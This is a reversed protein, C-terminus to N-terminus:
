QCITESLINKEKDKIIVKKNVIMQNLPLNITRTSERLQVYATDEEDQIKIYGDFKYESNNDLKLAFEKNNDLCSIKMDNSYVGERAYLAVATEMKINLKMSMETSLSDIKQTEANELMKVVLHARYDGERVNKIPGLQVRVDRRQGPKLNLRKPSVRINKSIDDSDEVGDKLYKGMKLRDIGLYEIDLELRISEDGTNTVILTKTEKNKPNFMIKGPAVLFSNSAFVQSSFTIACAALLLVTKKKMNNM